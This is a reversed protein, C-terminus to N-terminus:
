ELPFSGTEPSRMFEQLALPQAKGPKGKPSRPFQQGLCLQKWLDLLVANPQQDIEEQGVGAAILDNWMQMHM